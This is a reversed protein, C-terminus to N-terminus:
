VDQFTQRFMKIGQGLMIWYRIRFYGRLPVKFYALVELTTM